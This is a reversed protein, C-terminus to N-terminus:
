PPSPPPCCAHRPEGRDDCITSVMNTPARVLGAKVAAALDMPLPPVPKDPQPVLTGAEVLQQYV